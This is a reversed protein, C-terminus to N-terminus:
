CPSTPACNDLASRRALRYERRIGAERFRQREQDTQPEWRPVPRPEAQGDLAVLVLHADAVHAAESSEDWRDATVVVAVEMSTTGTWTLRGTAHAVDGVRVPTLFTMQDVVATVAPGGSWRGAVVGAVSDVLKMIMGGHVTGMYNTDAQTMVQSLTLEPAPSM